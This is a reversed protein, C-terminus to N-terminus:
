ISNTLPSVYIKQIDTHFAQTPYANVYFQYRWYGHIDLDGSTTVYKLQGDSGDTVLQADKTLISNDPKELVCYINAGILNYPTGSSTEITEQLVVGIENVYVSM